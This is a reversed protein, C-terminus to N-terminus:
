ITAEILSETAELQHPSGTDIRRFKFWGGHPHPFVPNSPCDLTGTVLTARSIIRHQMWALEVHSAPAVNIARWTRDDDCSLMCFESILQLGFFRMTGFCQYDSM